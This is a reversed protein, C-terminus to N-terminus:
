LNSKSHVLNKLKQWELRMSKELDPDQLQKEMFEVTGCARQTIASEKIGETLVDDKQCATFTLLLCCIGYMLIRKM